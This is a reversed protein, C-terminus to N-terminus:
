ENMIGSYKCLLQRYIFSCGNENDPLSDTVWIENFVVGSSSFAFLRLGYQRFSELASTGMGEAAL